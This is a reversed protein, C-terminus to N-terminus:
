LMALYQVQYLLLFSFLLTILVENPEENEM